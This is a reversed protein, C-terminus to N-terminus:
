GLWPLLEELLADVVDDETLAAIGPIGTRIPRETHIVRSGRSRTVQVMPQPPDAGPDFSLAIVDDRHREPSMRVEGSPTMVSWAQGESKLVMAVTRFAPIAATELFEEYAKQATQVRARRDTAERRAQEMLKQVRKRLLAVDGM